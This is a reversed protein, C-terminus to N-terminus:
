SQLPISLDKRLLLPLDGTILFKEVIRAGDAIIMERPCSHVPEVSLM